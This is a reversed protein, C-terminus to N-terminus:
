LWCLWLVLGPVTSANELGPPRPSMTPTTPGDAARLHLGRRRGDGFGANRGHDAAGVGAKRVDVVAPQETRARVVAIRRANDGIEADVAQLELLPRDNM